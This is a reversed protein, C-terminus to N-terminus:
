ISEEGLLCIVSYAGVQGHGDGAVLFADATGQEVADVDVYFDEVDGEHFQSVFALDVGGFGDAFAHLGGAFALQLAERALVQGAVGFYAGGFHAGVAFGVSTKLFLHDERM